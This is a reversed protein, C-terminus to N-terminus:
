REDADSGSPAAPQAAARGMWEVIAVVIAEPAETPLFHGGPITRTEHLGPFYRGQGIATGPVMCRDDLGHLHLLPVDAPRPLRARRLFRSMDRAAARYYELPGPLSLRIREEVAAIHAADRRAPGVTWRGWLERVLGNEIAREPLWPLQFFAMYRSRFLQAPYKAAYGLWALPHAVSLTLVCSAQGGLMADHAIAAGWDHGVLVCPERQLARAFTMLETSLADIAYSAPDPSPRYGPMAPAVARLGRAALSDMVASWCEPIDPFGHLLLVLPADPAGRSLYALGTTPERQYSAFTPSM